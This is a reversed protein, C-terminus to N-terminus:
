IEVLKSKDRIVDGSKDLCLYLFGEVQSNTLLGDSYLMKKTECCTGQEFLVTNGIKYQGLRHTHSMVISSFTHGENRFWYLAKEATKMIGSSFARPHCFIVNGIQSFWTGTYEIETDDFVSNLPEYKVKTKSKRDYHTFGDVFLYDFATEPILEQVDCDLNKALFTGLRLEHNGYNVVVKKPSLMEIMDILYQRATILEDIVSSRSTKIFKSLQSCDLLDGNIQLIDVKGIYDKFVSLPKQFPVHFDSVSIIRTFVGDESKSREYMRGRNFAAFDKRYASEGKPYEAYINLLNAIENCTLNYKDKNEFLRVFYDM